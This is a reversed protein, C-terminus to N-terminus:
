IKIQRAGQRGRDNRIVVAARLHQCLPDEGAAKFPKTQQSRQGEHASAPTIVVGCLAQAPEKIGMLGM